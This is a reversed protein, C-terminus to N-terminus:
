PITFEMTRESTLVCDAVRRSTRSLTYVILAINVVALIFAQRKIAQFKLDFM